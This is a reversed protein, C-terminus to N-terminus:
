FLFGLCEALTLCTLILCNVQYLAAQQQKSAMKIICRGFSVGPDTLTWFRAVLCSAISRHDLGLAKSQM